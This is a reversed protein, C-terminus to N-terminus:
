IARLKRPPASFRRAWEEAQAKVEAFEEDTLRRRDVLYAIPARGDACECFILVNDGVGEIPVARPASAVDEAPKRDIRMVM